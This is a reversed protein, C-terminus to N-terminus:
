DHRVERKRRVVLALGAGILGAALWIWGVAVPSGTNPLGSGAGGVGSAGQGNGGNGHGNHLHIGEVGGQFMTVQLHFSTKLDEGVTASPALAVRVTVRDAASRAIGLVAPTVRTKGAHVDVWGGSGVRAAITVDGSSLLQHADGAVVDVVMDGDTPGQDRVYFSAQRSDGPVWRVADDFLPQTLKSSWHVGDPSFGIDPAAAHAPQAGVVVALAAALCAVLRRIM